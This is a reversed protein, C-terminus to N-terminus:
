YNSKIVQPCGKPHVRGSISQIISEDVQTFGDRQPSSLLNTWKTTGTGKLVQHIRGSTSKIIKLCRKPHVRGSTSKIIFEDM